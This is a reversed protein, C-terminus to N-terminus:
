AAEADDAAASLREPLQKTFSLWEQEQSVAHANFLIFEHVHGVEESVSHDCWIRVGADRCKQFFYVDEGIPSMGDERLGFMFLPMMTAKGQEEAHSQLRNFVDAKMLCLGFGLHSVEEVVGGDAKEKTTYVLNRHDKERDDTVLRAATPATPFCRRAYNAGIIDRDQAWLRCFADKPFVHDADLWLLYDAEWMTAEACLRHRSECLNSSSVIFTSFEIEVPAGDRELKAYSLTYNMMDLVSQTWKAHVMGYAPICLAVKM